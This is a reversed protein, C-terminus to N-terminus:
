EDKTTRTGPEGSGGPGGTPCDRRGCVPRGQADCVPVGSCPCLPHRRANANATRLEALVARHTEVLQEVKVHLRSLRSGVLVEFPVTKLEGAIARKRKKRWFRLMM